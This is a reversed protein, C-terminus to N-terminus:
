AALKEERSSSVSEELSYYYQCCYLYCCCYNCFSLYVKCIRRCYIDGVRGIVRVHSMVCESLEWKDLNCPSSLLFPSFLFQPSTLLSISPPPHNHSHHLCCCFETYIYPTSLSNTLKEHSTTKRQSEESRKEERKIKLIMLVILSVSLFQRGSLSHSFFVHFNCCKNNNGLFTFAVSVEWRSWSFFM